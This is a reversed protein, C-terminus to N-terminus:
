HGHLGRGALHLAVVLALVVLVAIGAAYIWGPRRVPTAGDAPSSVELAGAAQQLRRGYPTLGRPKYVSLTTAVLLAVVAAAADGILQIRVGRLDTAALTAYAAVSAARSIARTHVLLLTTALVAILLKAVVWYHRLLGWSTGLSQVLGTALSALSFPVIVMWTIDDMALYASRLRQSDDGALGAISLALFAVVAGLWGVSCIVHATLALKRLGPPLPM